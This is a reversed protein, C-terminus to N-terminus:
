TRRHHRTSSRSRINRRRRRGCKAPPRSMRLPHATSRSARALTCLRPTSRSVENSARNGVFAVGEGLTVSSPGMTRKRGRVEREQTKFDDVRTFARSAIDFVDVSGTEGVPIWVRDRAREYAIFDVTVAGSAGPLAFERPATEGRVEPQKPSTPSGCGLVTAICALGAIRNARDM